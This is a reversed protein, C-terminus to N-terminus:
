PQEDGSPSECRLVSLLPTGLDRIRLLVGFLASQDLAKGYLITHGNALKKVKLGCFARTWHQGLQGQIEIEYDHSNQGQDEM